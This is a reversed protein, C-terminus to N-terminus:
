RPPAKRAQLLDNEARPRQSRASARLTIAGSSLRLALSEEGRRAPLDKFNRDSGRIRRCTQVTTAWARPGPRLKESFIAVSGFFAHDLLILATSISVDFHSRRSASPATARLAIPALVPARPWHREIRRSCKQRSVM